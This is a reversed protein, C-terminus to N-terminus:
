ALISRDIRDVGSVAALTLVVRMEEAYLDLLQEIGAQGAAALAFVWPRGIMVGRAGLALMRVVDLGSRVGGDVLVTTRDGVADAIAPLARATSLAGDLQRGGHNSVVIGDAGSDLARCADEADLIGKIILPGRWRSRVFGLDDWGIASDFNAATWALFDNLAADKGLRNAINGLGHPRGGLGVRLAWGPRAAIQRGRQIKGAVGPAGTLGSRHDRYRRGPVPIDVTLMLATCGSEAAEAILDAVIERDRAMYLQFWFPQSAAAAVEALPCLSVTSLTFPVGRAQAARLGACEGRPAALGALGVPALIVPLALKQGFLTTSLHIEGTGGLVRQRIAVDALDMTNRALTTESFAGGDIYDFLFRPLRRRAAARFEDPSVVKM